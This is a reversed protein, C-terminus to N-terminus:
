KQEGGNNDVFSYTKSFTQNRSIIIGNDSVFVAKFEVNDCVSNAAITFCYTYHFPTQGAKVRFVMDSLEIMSETTGDDNVVDKQEEKPEIVGKNYEYTSYYKAYPIQIKFELFDDESGYNIMTFDVIVYIKTNIEFQDGEYLKIPQYKEDVTEAFQISCTIPTQKPTEEKSDIWPLWALWKPVTCGTAGVLVLSLCLITMLCKFSKKM